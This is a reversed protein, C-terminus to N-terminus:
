LTDQADRDEQSKVYTFAVTAGTVLADKGPKPPSARDATSAPTSTSTTTIPNSSETDGNNLRRAAVYVIVTQGFAIRKAMLHASGPMASMFSCLAVAM